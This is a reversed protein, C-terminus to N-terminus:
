QIRVSGSMEKIIKLAFNNSRGTILHVMCIESHGNLLMLTEFGIEYCMAIILSINRPIHCIIAKRKILCLENLFSNECM